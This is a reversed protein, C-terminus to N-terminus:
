IKNGEEDMSEDSSSLDSSTEDSSSDDPSVNEDDNETEDPKSTAYDVTENDSDNESATDHDEVTEM